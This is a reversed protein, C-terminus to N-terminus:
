APRINEEKQKLHPATYSLDGATAQAGVQSGVSSIKRSVENKLVIYLDLSLMKLNFFM